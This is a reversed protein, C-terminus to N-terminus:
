ETYAENGKGAKRCVFERIEKVTALRSNRSEALSQQQTLTLGRGNNSHITYADSWSLLNGFIEKMSAGPYLEKGAYQFPIGISVWDRNTNNGVAVMMEKDVLKGSTKYPERSFLQADYKM